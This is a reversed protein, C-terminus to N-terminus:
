PPKEPPPDLWGPPFAWSRADDLVLSHADVSPWPAPKVRRPPASALIPGTENRKPLKGRPASPRPRTYLPRPDAPRFCRGCPDFTGLGIWNRLPWLIRAAAPVRALIEAARPDALIQELNWGVEAAEWGLSSPLWGNRTPVRVGFLRHLLLNEPHPAGGTHPGRRLHPPQGALCGMLDTFRRAIRILRRCLPWWIRRLEPKRADRAILLCLKVVIFGVRRALDPAYALIPTTMTPATDM